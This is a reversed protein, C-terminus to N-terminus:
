LPRFQQRSCLRRLAPHRDPRHSLLLFAQQLASRAASLLLVQVAEAQEVVAVVLQAVAVVMQELQELAAV